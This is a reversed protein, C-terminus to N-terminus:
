QAAAVLPLIDRDIFGAKTAMAEIRRMERGAEATSLDGAHFHHATALFASAFQQVQAQRIETFTQQEQATM